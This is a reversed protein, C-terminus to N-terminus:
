QMLTEQVLIKLDEDGNWEVLLGVRQFTRCIEIADGSWNLWVRPSRGEQELDKLSDAEQAHYFVYNAHGGDEMEAHGCTNCCAFNQRAAFGRSRLQRFGNSLRQRFTGIV